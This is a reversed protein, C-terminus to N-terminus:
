PHQPVNELHCSRLKSATHRKAASTRNVYVARRCSRADGRDVTDPLGCHSSDFGDALSRSAPIHLPGPEIMVDNLASITLRPLDHRCSRQQRAIWARRVRLYVVRHGAIYASAAGVIANSSGYFVRALSPTLLAAFWRCAWAALIPRLRLLLRECLAGSPRHSRPLPSARATARGDQDMASPLSLPATKFANTLISGSPRTRKVM